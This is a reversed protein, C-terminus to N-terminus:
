RQCWSTPPKGDLAIVTQDTVPPVGCQPCVPAIDAAARELARLRSDLNAM